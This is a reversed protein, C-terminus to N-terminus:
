MKQVHKLNTQLHKSMKQVTKANTVVVYQKQFMKQHTQCKNPINTANATCAKSKNRSKNSNTTHTKFKNTRCITKTMKSTKTM